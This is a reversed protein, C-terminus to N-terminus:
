RNKTGLRRTKLTRAAEEMLATLTDLAEDVVRLPDDYFQRVKLWERHM